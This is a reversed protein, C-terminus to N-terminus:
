LGTPQYWLRIKKRGKQVVCSSFWDGSLKWPKLISAENDTLHVEKNLQVKIIAHILTEYKDFKNGVKMKDPVLRLIFPFLFIFKDHWRLFDHGVFGISKSATNLNMDQDLSQVEVRHLSHQLEM